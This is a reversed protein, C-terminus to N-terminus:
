QIYEVRGILWQEKMKKFYMTAMSVKKFPQGLESGEETFTVNITIHSPSYNLTNMLPKVETVKRITKQGTVKVKNISANPLLEAEQFAETFLNLNKYGQYNIDQYSVERLSKIGTEILKTVSELDKKKQQEPTLKPKSSDKFPQQDVRQSPQDHQQNNTENMEKLKEPSSPGFIVKPDQKTETGNLQHTITPKGFEKIGPSCATLLIMAGLLTLAVQREKMLFM